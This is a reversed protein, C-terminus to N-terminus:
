SPLDSFTGFSSYENDTAKALRKQLVDEVEFETEIYRRLVFLRGLLTRLLRKKYRIEPHLM